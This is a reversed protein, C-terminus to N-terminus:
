GHRVSSVWDIFEQPRSVFPAHGTDQWITVSAQMHRHMIEGIAVPVLSDQVGYLCSTPCEIAALESSIDSDHLVELGWEIDAQSDAASQKLQQMVERAHSDGHAQLAIFRQMTRGPQDTFDNHFQAFTAEPMAPQGPAHQVFSPTGSVLMLQQVMSPAILAAQMAVLAGLSWGLLIAPAQLGDIVQRALPELRTASLHSDGHGPLVISACDYSAQLEAMVPHWVRATSAWGHLLVLRSKTKM